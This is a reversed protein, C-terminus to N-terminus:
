IFKIGFNSTIFKKAETISPKEWLLYRSWFGASKMDSWNENASHRAIYSDKRKPDKHRTFDSMGAAGFDTHSGDPFTVRYKKAKLPSKKLKVEM